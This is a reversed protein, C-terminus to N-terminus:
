KEACRSCLDEEVWTCELGPNDETYGCVRCIQETRAKERFYRQWCEPGTFGCSQKGCEPWSVPICSFPCDDKDYITRSSLALARQLREAMDMVVGVAEAVEADLRSSYIIEKAHKFNM